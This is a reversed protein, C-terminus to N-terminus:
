LSDSSKIMSVDFKRILTNMSEVELKDQEIQPYKEQAEKQYEIYKAYEALNQPTKQFQEIFFSLTNLTAKSKETMLGYLYGKFYDIKFLVHSSLKNKIRKGEANVIGKQTDKIYSQINQEWSKLQILESKTFEMSHQKALFSDKNSDIAWWNCDDEIQRCKEYQTNVFLQAQNFDQMVKDHIDM